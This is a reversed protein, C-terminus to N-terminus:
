SGSSCTQQSTLATTYAYKPFATLLEQATGIHRMTACPLHDVYLLPSHLGHARPQLAGVQSSVGDEALGFGECTGGAAVWGCAGCVLVCKYTCTHTLTHALSLPLALLWFACALRM